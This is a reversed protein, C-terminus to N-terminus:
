PVPQTSPEAAGRWRAADYAAAVPPALILVPVLLTLGPTRNVASVMVVLFALAWGGVAAAFCVSAAGPRGQVFQGLGPIVLSVIAALVNGGAGPRGANAPGGTPGLATSPRGCRVCAPAQDSISAGCDPCVILPM